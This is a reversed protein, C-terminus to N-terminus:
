DSSRVARVLSVPTYPDNSGANRVMTVQNIHNPAFLVRVEYDFTGGEVHTATYRFISSYSEGNKVCTVREYPIDKEKLYGFNVTKASVDYTNEGSEGTATDAWNVKFSGGGLHTRTLVSRDTGFGSPSTWHVTEEWEGVSSLGAGLACEDTADAIANHNLMMVIAAVLLRKTSM